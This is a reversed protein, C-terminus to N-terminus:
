LGLGFGQGLLGGLQFSGWKSRPSVSFDCPGGGRFSTDLDLGQIPDHLMLPMHNTYTMSGVLQLDLKKVIKSCISIDNNYVM